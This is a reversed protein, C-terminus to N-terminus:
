MSFKLQVIGINREEQRIAIVTQHSWGKNVQQFKTTHKCYVTKLCTENQIFTCHRDDSDIHSYLSTSSSLLTITTSILEGEYTVLSGVGLLM